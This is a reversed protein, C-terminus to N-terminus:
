VREHAFYGDIKSRSQLLNFTYDLIKRPAHRRVGRPPRTAECPALGGGELTM